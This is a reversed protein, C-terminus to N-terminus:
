ITMYDYFYNLSVRIQSASTCRMLANVRANQRDSKHFALFANIHCTVNTMLCKDLKLFLSLGQVLRLLSWKQVAGRSGVGLERKANSRASLLPLGIRRCSQCMAKLLSNHSENLVVDARQGKRLALGFCYLDPHCTGYQAAVRIEDHFLHKLKRTNYELKEDLCNAIVGAVYKRRPCEVEPPAWALWHLMMPFQDCNLVVRRHYNSVHCAFSEVGFEILCLQDQVSFSTHVAQDLFTPIAMIESYEHMIDFAKGYVLLAM